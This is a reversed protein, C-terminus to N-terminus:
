FGKKVSLTYTGTASSGVMRIELVWKGEPLSPSMSLNTFDGRNMINTFKAQDNNPGYLTGMLVDTADTTQITVTGATELTFTYRQSQGPTNIAGNVKADLTLAQTTTGGGGGGTGPGPDPDGTGGTASPGYIQKVLQKDFADLVNNWGTEFPAGDTYTALGEGFPYMMISKPDFPTKGAIADRFPTLVQQLIKQPPWGTMQQYTRIVAAENWRLPRDPRSHEHILGLAHGFEHLIVRRYETDDTRSTDFILDMPPQNARSMSRCQVGLYCQYVGYRLQNGYQDSRPLVNVLIDPSGGDFNFGISCFKSWEPAIAIVKDRVIQTARNGPNTFAVNLVSNPNWTVAAMMASFVQPHFRTDPPQQTFIPKEFRDGAPLNWCGPFFTQDAM